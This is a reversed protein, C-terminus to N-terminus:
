HFFNMKSDKGQKINCFIINVIKKPHMIKIADQKQRKVHLTSAIRTTLICRTAPNECTLFDDLFFSM